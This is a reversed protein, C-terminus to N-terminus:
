FSIPSPRMFLVEQWNYSAEKKTKGESMLIGPVILSM